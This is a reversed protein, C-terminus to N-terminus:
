EAEMAGLKPVTFLGDTFEPAFEEPPRALPVSGPHDARLPVSAPGALFPPAQEGAPVERLQEVFGVINAMQEVLKPLDAEAVDLEALKAVKLVDERGISM